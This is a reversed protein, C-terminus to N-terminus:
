RWTRATCSTAPAPTGGAASVLSLGSNAGIALAINGDDGWSVGRVNAANCITVAAGGEASIKKLKGDAAFGIWQGDPSFFPFNPNETGPLLVLKSQRLLRTYLHSKGDAGRLVVVIRSGDPSIALPNGPNTPIPADPDLEVNMHLLPRLPAPRTAIYWGAGAALTATAFLM